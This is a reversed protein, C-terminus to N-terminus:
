KNIENTKDEPSNNITSLDTEEDELVKNNLKDRLYELVLPTIDVRKNASIYDQIIIDINQQKRVDDIASFVEKQVDDLAANRAFRLEESFDQLSRGRARKRARLERQKQRKLDSDINKLTILKELAGELNNIEELAEALKKEQPLFKEKLRNSALDSQPANEMLFTVNVVGVSVAEKELSLLPTTLFLIGVLVFSFLTFTMRKNDQINNRQKNKEMLSIIRRETMFLM